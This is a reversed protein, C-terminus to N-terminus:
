KFVHKQGVHYAVTLGCDHCKASHHPRDYLAEVETLGLWEIALDILRESDALETYWDDKLERRRQVYDPHRKGVTDAEHLLSRYVVEGGGIMTKRVTRDHIKGRIGDLRVIKGDLAAYLRDTFNQRSIQEVHSM